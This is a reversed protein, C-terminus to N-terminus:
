MIVEPATGAPIIFEASATDTGSPVLSGVVRSGLLPDAADLTGNSSLYFGTLSGTVPAAGQNKTTDTLTIPGGAMGAASVSLASM